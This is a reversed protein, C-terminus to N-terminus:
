PLETGKLSLILSMINMLATHFVELIHNHTTPRPRFSINYLICFIIDMQLPDYSCEQERTSLSFERGSLTNRLPEGKEGRNLSEDVFQLLSLFYM